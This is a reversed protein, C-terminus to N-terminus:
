FSMIRDVKRIMEIECLTLCIITILLGDLLLIKSSCPLQQSNEYMTGIGEQQPAAAIENNISFLDDYFGFQRAAFDEFFM